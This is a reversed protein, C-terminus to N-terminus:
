KENSWERLLHRVVTSLSEGQTQAKEQARKKLEEPVRLNIIAQSVYVDEKKQHIYLNYVSSLCKDLKSGLNKGTAIAG